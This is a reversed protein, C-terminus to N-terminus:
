GCVIGYAPRYDKSQAEKQMMYEGRKTNGYWRTGPCHYVGSNTNVWVRVKPNGATQTQAATFSRARPIENASVLWLISVVLAIILKSM